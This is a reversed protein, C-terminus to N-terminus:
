RLGRLGCCYLLVPCVLSSPGSTDCHLDTENTRQQQHEDRQAHRCCRECLDAHRNHDGRGRQRDILLRKTRFVTVHPCGAVPGLAVVEVIIVPHRAGPHHRRFDSEQPSRPIPTPAALTKNKILAVPTWLNTEVAPDTIAETVKSFAVFASTPIVPLKEVVAGHVVHVLSDNVVHVVRGDDVIGVIVVDAVVPAIAPDVRTRRRLLLSRRMLPMDRRYSNLSLM